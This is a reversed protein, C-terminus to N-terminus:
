DDKSMLHDYATKQKPTSRKKGKNAKLRKHEASLRELIWYRVLSYITQNAPLGASKARANAEELLEQLQVHMAETFKFGLHFTSREDGEKRPRGPKKKPPSEM